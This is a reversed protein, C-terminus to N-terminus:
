YGSKDLVDESGFRWGLSPEPLARYLAAAGAAVIALSAVALRAARNAGVSV